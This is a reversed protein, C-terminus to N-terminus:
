SDGEKRSPAVSPTRPTQVHSAQVPARREQPPAKIVAPLREELEDVTVDSNGAAFQEIAQKRFTELLQYPDIFNEESIGCALATAKDAAILPTMGSSDNNAIADRYEPINPVEVPTQAYEYTKDHSDYGTTVVAGRITLTPAPRVLTSEKITAGVHRLEGLAVHNGQQCRMTGAWSFGDTEGQLRHIATYPNPYCFLRNIKM